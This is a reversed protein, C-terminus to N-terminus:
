VKNDVSQLVKISRYWDLSGNGYDVAAIGTEADGNEYIRAVKTLAFIYRIKYGSFDSNSSYKDINELFVYIISLYIGSLCKPTMRFEDPIKHKSSM